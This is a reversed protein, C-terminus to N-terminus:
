IKLKKRANKENLASVYLYNEEVIIKRPQKIEKFSIDFKADLEEFKAKSLVKTLKNYKFLTHGRHPKISGLIEQKKEQEKQSVVSMKDKDPKDSGLFRM